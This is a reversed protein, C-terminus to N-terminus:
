DSVLDSNRSFVCSSFDLDAVLDLLRTEENLDIGFDSQRQVAAEDDADYMHIEPPDHPAPSQSM